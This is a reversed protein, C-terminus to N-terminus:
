LTKVGIRQDLCCLQFQNCTAIFILKESIMIIEEITAKNFAEVTFPVKFNDNKKNYSHGARILRAGDYISDCDPFLTTLTAKVIEPLDELGTPRAPGSIDLILWSDHLQHLEQLASDLGAAAPTSPCM